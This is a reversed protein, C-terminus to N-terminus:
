GHLPRSEKIEALQVQTQENNQITRGNKNNNQESFVDRLTVTLLRRHVDNSTTYRTEFLM